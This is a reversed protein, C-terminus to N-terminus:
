PCNFAYELSNKKLELAMEIEVRKKSVKQCRGLFFRGKIGSFNNSSGISLSLGSFQHIENGVQEGSSSMWLLLILKHQLQDM